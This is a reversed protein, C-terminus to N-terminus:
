AAIEIPNRRYNRRRQKKLQREIEDFTIRVASYLFHHSGSEEEAHAVYLRDGPITYRISVKFVGGKNWHHMEDVVVECHSGARAFKELRDAQKRVLHKISNSQPMHRFQVQLAVPNMTNNEQM